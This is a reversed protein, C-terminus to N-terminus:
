KYLTKDNETSQIPEYFNLSCDYEEQFLHKIITIIKYPTPQCNSKHWTGNYRRTVELHATDLLSISM